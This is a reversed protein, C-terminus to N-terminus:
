TSTLAFRRCSETTIGPSAEGLRAQPGLETLLRATTEKDRARCAWTAFLNKNYPDPHRAIMDEFGKKMRPWTALTVEFLDGRTKTAVDMYLWAYFAEGETASTRAVAAKVFRDVAEYDGGWQPLLYNMRTYYLPQYYPFRTVSEDFLADFQAAPRESSGAVILAVWYWIPSNKGEPEADALAKTARRLRESFIQMAEGPTESAYAGGRARWADGEWRVAMALPRLKSNPSVQAWRAMTAEFVPSSGAQEFVQTFPHIMSTGDLARVNGALMEDYMRDLKAFDDNWFAANASYSADLVTQHTYVVKPPPDMRWEKPPRHDNLNWWQAHAQSTAVVLLAALMRFIANMGTVPLKGRFLM